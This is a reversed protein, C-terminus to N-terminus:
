KGKLDICFRPTHEWLKWLQSNTFTQTSGSFGSSFCEECNLSNVDMPLNAKTDVTSIMQRLFWCIFTHYQRNRFTEWLSETSTKHSLTAAKSGRVCPVHFSKYFCFFHIKNEFARCSVMQYGNPFLYLFQNFKFDKLFIRVLCNRECPQSAFYIGGSIKELFDTILRIIRSGLGAEKWLRRWSLPPNCLKAHNWLYQSHPHSAALKARGATNFLPLYNVHPM